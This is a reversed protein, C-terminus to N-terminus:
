GGAVEALVHAIIWKGGGTNGSHGEGVGAYLVIKGDGLGHRLSDGAVIDRGKSEGDSQIVVGDGLSIIGLAVLILGIGGARVFRNGKGIADASELQSVALGELDNPQGLLEAELHLLLQRVILVRVEARIHFLAVLLFLKGVASGALDTLELLHSEAVVTVADDAFEHVIGLSALLEVEALVVIGAGIGDRSDKVLQFLCEFSDAAAGDEKSGVARACVFLQPQLHHFGAILHCSLRRQRFVQSVIDGEASCLLRIAEVGIGGVCVGRSHDGAAVIAAAHDHVFAAQGEVIDGKVAAPIGVGGGFVAANDLDVDLDVACVGQRHRFFGGQM